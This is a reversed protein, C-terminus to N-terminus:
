YNSQSSKQIQTSHIEFLPSSAYGYSLSSLWYSSTWHVEIANEFLNRLPALLASFLISLPGFSQLRYRLLASFL